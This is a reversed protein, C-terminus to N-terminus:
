PEMQCSTRNENELIVIWQNNEQVLRYSGTLLDPNCILMNEWEQTTLFIYDSDSQGLASVLDVKPLFSFAEIPLRVDLFINIVGAAEYPDPHIDMVDLLGSSIEITAEPCLDLTGQLSAFSAFRNNVESFNDQKLAAKLNMSLSFFLNLGILIILFLSVLPTKEPIVLMAVILILFFIDIAYNTVLASITMGLSASIRYLLFRVLFIFAGGILLGVAYLITAKKTEPLKFEFYQPALAAILGIVPYLYREDTRWGSRVMLLIMMILYVLPILWIAKERISLKAHLKAFSLLYLTFSLFYVPWILTHLYSEPDPKITTFSDLTAKFQVWDSFRFGFLPDGIVIANVLIFIASGALVGLVFFGWRIFLKKWNFTKESAFGFVPLTLLLIVSFEKTKFSWFFIAGLLLIIWNSDNKRIFYIFVLLYIMVMMMTTLDVIPIGFYRYFLNGALFIVLAIAGHWINNDKRIYRGLLFVSVSSVSMVFGWFLKMGLLPTSAMAMFIAELYIHTYRNMVIYNSYGRLGIDAYLLEDSGRPGAANASFFVFLVIFIVMPLVFKSYKQIIPFRHQQIDNNITM